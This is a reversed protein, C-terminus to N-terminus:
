YPAGAGVSPLAVPANTHEIRDKTTQGITKDTMPSTRADFAFFRILADPPAMPPSPMAFAAVIMEIMLMARATTNKTNITATATRPVLEDLLNLMTPLETLPKMM